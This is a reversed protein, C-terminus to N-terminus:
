LNDIQEKFKKHSEFVFYTTILLVVTLSFGIILIFNSDFSISISGFTNSFFKEVDGYVTTIKKDATGSSSPELSFVYGVLIAFVVGFFVLISKMFASSDKIKVSANSIQNMVRHTFNEPANEIEIERLIQDVFRHAKVLALAESDSNIIAKLETIEQSTLEGDIYKNLVEDTIKIM